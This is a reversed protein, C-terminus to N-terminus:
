LYKNKRKMEEDEGESRVFSSGEEESTFLNCLKCIFKRNM